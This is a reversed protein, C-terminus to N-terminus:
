ERLLRISGSVRVEVRSTGSELAPPAAAARAVSMAEARLPVPPQYGGSHIDVNALEYGKADLAEAVLGARRLFDALAQRVLREEASQRKDESVSFQVAQVQLREQLTGMLQSVREVDQSELVLEQRGRWRVIKGDDYVPYTQYSATRSRVQEQKRAQALAWAMADNIAESVRGPDRDEANASLTATVTDNEVEEGNAVSFSVQDRIPAEETAQSIAPLLLLWWTLLVAVVFGLRDGIQESRPEILPTSHVVNNECECVTRLHGWQM